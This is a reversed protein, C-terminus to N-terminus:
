LMWFLITTRKKLMSFHVRITTAIHSYAWSIDCVCEVSLGMAGCRLTLSRCNTWSLGLIELFNQASSNKNTTLFWASWCKVNLLFDFVLNSRFEQYRVQIRLRTPVKTQVSQNDHRTWAVGHRNTNM